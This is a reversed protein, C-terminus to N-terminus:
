AGLPEVAIRAQMAHTAGPAITVANDAANATEICVMRPWEDDGYDPMLRAKDLWPNWVVTSASGSKAVVIRRGWGPDELVCPTATHLFVRDTEGTFTIPGRHRSRGAAAVKDIYEADDLGLVTVNRVDSVAFYSHLAETVTIPRGSPNHAALTMTLRPGVTVTHRILFEGLWLARTQDNSALALTVSTSGDPERCASEVRWEMLRVVGHLPSESTPGSAGFWPFCVPVGGRVPKGDAFWSQRSLWLVPKQGAPRYSTVHAGHLLVTATAGAGSVAIQTLGGPGAQFSVAGPIAFRKALEAITM